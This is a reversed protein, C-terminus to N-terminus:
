ENRKGGMATPTIPDCGPTGPIPELSGESLHMAQSISNKMPEPEEVHGM